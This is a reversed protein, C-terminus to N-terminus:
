WSISKAKQVLRVHDKWVKGGLVTEDIIPKCNAPTAKGFWAFEGTKNYLLVNAAFKHGGVHNIYGVHVGGPRTDGYDRLLDLERLHNDFEKKMVPATIGCRKDRTRHLCLFIYSKYSSPVVSVGHVSEPLGSAEDRAKILQPMLSTLVDDIKSAPCAKVWVFFPLLLVDNTSSDCGDELPFNAVSVKVPGGMIKFGDREGWKSVAKEVSGDTDTADHAWDSKGTPIVCHLEFPKTLGYLPSSEDVAIKGPFKASCEGCEFSCESLPLTDAVEQSKDGLLKSVLGFVM